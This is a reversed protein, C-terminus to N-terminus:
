QGMGGESIITELETKKNDGSENWNVVIKVKKAEENLKCITLPCDSIEYTASSQPLSNLNIDSFTNSGNILNAYTQKRLFEIQKSAIERATSSHRSSNIASLSAPINLILLSLFIVAGIVLILEIFSIGSQKKINKLHIM